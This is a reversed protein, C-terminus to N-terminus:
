FRFLAKIKGWTNKSPEPEEKTFRWIADGNPDFVGTQDEFRLSVPETSQIYFVVLVGKGPEIVGPGLDLGVMRLDGPKPVNGKVLSLPAAQPGKEPYPEVITAEV